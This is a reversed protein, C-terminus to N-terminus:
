ESLDEVTNQITTEDGITDEESFTELLARLDDGLLVTHICPYIVLRTEENLEELVDLPEIIQYKKLLAITRRMETPSPLGRLVRFEGAKGNLAGVTTVIHSSSSITEMQEDYILKLVLLYITALRSLKEGWLQEGQIYIVGMHANERLTIGAVKFYARIFELHKSLVRYERVPVMRGQRKDFKRELVFTQRYLIQIVETIEEQEEQSLQEFYEIM